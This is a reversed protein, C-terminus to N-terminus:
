LYTILKTTFFTQLIILGQHVPGGRSASAIQPGTLINFHLSFM